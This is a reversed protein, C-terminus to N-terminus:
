RHEVLLSLLLVVFAVGYLVANAAHSLEWRRRLAEWNAPMVTWNSTVRNIPFTVAFFVILSAVICIAAM